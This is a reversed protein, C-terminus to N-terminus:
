QLKFFPYHNYNTFYGGFDPWVDITEANLVALADKTKVYM